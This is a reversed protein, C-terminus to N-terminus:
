NLLTQGKLVELVVAFEADSVPVCAVAVALKGEAEPAGADFIIGM